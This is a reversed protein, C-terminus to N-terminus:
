RSLRCKNLEPRLCIKHCVEISTNDVITNNLSRQTLHCTNDIWSVECRILERNSIMNIPTTHVWIERSKLTFACVVFWRKTLLWFQTRFPVILSELSILNENTGYQYSFFFELKDLQSLKKSVLKEWYSGDFVSDFTRRSGTLKLHRLSPISLSLLEFDQTCLSCANIILSNLSNHFTSANSSLLTNNVGNVTCDQMVLTRLVPLRRLILLYESYDCNAITLRQIMCSHSLEGNTMYSADNLCLKQRKCENLIPSSLIRAKNSKISPSVLSDTGWNQLLHELNKVQIGYLNMSRLRSFRHYDLLSIIKYIFMDTSYADSITVSVINESGIIRILANVADISKSNVILQYQNYSSVIAYMQRCSPRISGIITHTDCYDFIRHILEAPLDLLSPSAMSTPNVTALYSLHLTKSIHFLLM